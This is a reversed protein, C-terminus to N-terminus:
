SNWIYKGGTLNDRFVAAYYCSFLQWTCTNAVRAIYRGGCYLLTPSNTWSKILLRHFTEGSTMERKDVGRTTALGNLLLGLAGSNCVRTMRLADIEIIRQYRM